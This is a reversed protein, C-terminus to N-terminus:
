KMVDPCWEVRSKGSFEVTGDAERQFRGPNMWFCPGKPLSMAEQSAVPRADRNISHANLECFVRKADKFLAYERAVDLALYDFRGLFHKPADGPAYGGGVEAVTREVVSFPGLLFEKLDRGTQLEQGVRGCQHIGAPIESLKRGAEHQGNFIRHVAYEPRQALGSQNLFASSAGA